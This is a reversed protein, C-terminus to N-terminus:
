FQNFRLFNTNNSSIFANARGGQFVGRFGNNLRNSTSAQNHKRAWEKGGEIGKKVAEPCLQAFPSKRLNRLFAPDYKLPAREPVIASAVEETRNDDNRNTLLIEETLTPSPTYQHCEVKENFTVHVVM